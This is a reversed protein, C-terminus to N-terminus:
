NEKIINKEETEILLESEPSNAVEVVSIRKIDGFVEPFRKKIESLPLYYKRTIELRSLANAVAVQPAPPQTEVEQDPTESIPPLLQIEKETPIRWHFSRGIREKVLRHTKELQYLANYLNASPVRGKLNAYLEKVTLKGSKEIKLMIIDKLDGSSEEATDPAAQSKEEEIPETPEVPELSEVDIPASTPGPQPATEEVEPLCWMGGTQSVKKEEKLKAMRRLLWSRDVVTILSTQIKETTAPGARLRRFIMEDIDETSDGKDM